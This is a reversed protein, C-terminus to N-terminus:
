LPRRPRYSTARLTNVSLMCTRAITQRYRTIVHDDFVVFPSGPPSVGKLRKSKNQQRGPLSPWRYYRPDIRRFHRAVAAVVVVIHRSREAYTRTCAPLHRRIAVTVIHTSSTYLARGPAPNNHARRDRRYCRYLPFRASHVNANRLPTLHITRSLPVGKGRARRLRLSAVLRGGGGSRQGNGARVRLGRGDVRRLVWPSGGTAVPSGVTARADEEDPSLKEARM